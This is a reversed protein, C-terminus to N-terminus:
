NGRDQRSTFTLETKCILTLHLAWNFDPATWGKREPAAGSSGSAGDGRAM